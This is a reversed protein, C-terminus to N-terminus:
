LCRTFPSCFKQVRSDHRRTSWMLESTKCRKLYKIELDEL